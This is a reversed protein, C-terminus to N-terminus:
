DWMPMNLGNNEYDEVFHSFFNYYNETMAPLAQKILGVLDDVYKEFERRGEEEKKGTFQIEVNIGSDGLLFCNDGITANIGLTSTLNAIHSDEYDYLYGEDIEDNPFLRGKKNTKSITYM